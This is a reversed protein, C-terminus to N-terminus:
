CRIRDSIKRIKRSLLEIVIEGCSFSEQSCYGDLRLALSSITEFSVPDLSWRFPYYKHAGILGNKLIKFFWSSNLINLNFEPLLM